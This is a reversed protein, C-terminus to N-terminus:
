SSPRASAIARRLQALRRAASVQIALGVLTVVVVLPRDVRETGAIIATNGAVIAIWVLVCVARLTRLEDDM